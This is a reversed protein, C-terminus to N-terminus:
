ERARVYRCWECIQGDDEFRKTSLKLSNKTAQTAMALQRFLIDLLSQAFHAQSEQLGIDVEAHDFVEDVTNFALGQPLLDQFTERGLLLDNLDDIGLQHCQETSLM